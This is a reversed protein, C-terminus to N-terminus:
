SPTRDVNARKDTTNLHWHRAFVRGSQLLLKFASHPISNKYSLVRAISCHRSLTNPSSINVSGEGVVRVELWDPSNGSVVRSGDSAAWVAAEPGCTSRPHKRWMFVCIYDTFCFALAWRLVCVCMCQTSSTAIGSDDILCEVVVNSSNQAVCSIQTVWPSLAVALDWNQM